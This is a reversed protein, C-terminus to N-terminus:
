KQEVGYNPDILIDICRKCWEVKDYDDQTIYHNMINQLIIFNRQTNLAEPASHVLTVHLSEMDKLMMEKSEGLIDKNEIIIEHIDNAVIMIDRM